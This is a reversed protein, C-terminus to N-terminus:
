TRRSALIIANASATCCLVASCSPPRVELATSTRKLLGKRQDNWDQPSTGMQLDHFTRISAIIREEDITCAQKLVWFIAFACYKSSKVFQDGSYSQHLSSILRNVCLEGQKHLSGCATLSIGNTASGSLICCNGKIIDAKIKSRSMCQESNEDASM